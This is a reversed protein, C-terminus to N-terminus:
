FHKKAYPELVVDTDKKDLPINQYFDSRVM